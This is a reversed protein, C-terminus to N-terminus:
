TSSYFQDRKCTTDEYIKLFILCDSYFLHSLIYAGSHCEKCANNSKMLPRLGVVNTSSLVYSRPITMPLIGINM